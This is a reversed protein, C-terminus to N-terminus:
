AGVSKVITASNPRILRVEPALAASMPEYSKVMRAVSLPAVLKVPVAAILMRMISQEVVGAGIYKM